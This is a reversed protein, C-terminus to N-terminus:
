KRIRNRKRRRIDARGERTDSSGHTRRRRTSEHHRGHTEVSRVLKREGDLTRRRHRGDTAAAHAASKGGDCRCHFFESDRRLPRPLHVHQTLLEPTAQYPQGTIGTEGLQRRYFWSTAMDGVTKNSLQVGTFDFQDMPMMEDLRPSPPPPPAGATTSPLIGYAVGGATGNSQGVPRMLVMEKGLVKELNAVYVVNIKTPDAFTTDLIVGRGTAQEDPKLHEALGSGQPHYNMTVTPPIAPDTNPLGPNEGQINTLILFGNAPVVAQPPHAAIDDIQNQVDDLKTLETLKLRGTAASTSRDITAISCKQLEIAVGYPNYLEIAIYGNLNQGYEASQATDTNVYIRSIFPQPRFGFLHAQTTKALDGGLGSNVNEVELNITGNAVRVDAAAATVKNFSERDRIETANLAAIASRLTAVQTPLMYPRNNFTGTGSNSVGAATTVPRSRIPSRMSMATRVYPDPMFRYPAAVSPTTFKSAVYPNPNTADPKLWGANMVYFFGRWLEGFDATNPNIKGMSVGLQTSTTETGTSNYYTTTSFGTTGHNVQMYLRNPNQADVPLLSIFGSGVNSNVSFQTWLNGVAIPADTENSRPVGDRRLASAPLTDAPTAVPTGAGDARRISISEGLPNYPTFLSRRPRWPVTNGGGNGIYTTGGAPVAPDEDDFRFNRSFWNKDVTASATTLSFTTATNQGNTVPSWPETELALSGVGNISSQIASTQLVTELESSSLSAPLVASGKYMLLKLASDGAGYFTYTEAGGNVTGTNNWRANLGRSLADGVTTYNFSTSVTSATGDNYPSTGSGAIGPATKLPAGTPAPATKDEGVRKRLLNKMQPSITAATTATPNYDILLEQLGVSSPFYGRLPYDTVPGAYTTGDDAILGGTSDFDVNRSMATNVNIRANMDVIRLAVYWTVGSIDGIPLRQLGSDAIGDGDADAALFTRFIGSGPTIEITLAPYDRGEIQIPKAAAAGTKTYDRLYDPVAYAPRAYRLSTGAPANPNRYPSEFMTDFIPGTISRWIPYNTVSQLSTNDILTPITSALFSSGSLGSLTGTQEFPSSWPKYGHVAMTGTSDDIMVPTQRFESLSDTGGLEGGIAGTATSRVGDILMEIETNYGHQITAGRDFRSTTVYATGILALIVLLAVALILVSGRRSRRVPRAAPQNSNM